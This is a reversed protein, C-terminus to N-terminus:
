NTLVLFIQQQFHDLKKLIVIQNVKKRLLLM